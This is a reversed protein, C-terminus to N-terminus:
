NTGNTGNTGVTDESSNAVVGIAVVAAVGNVGIKGFGTTSNAATANGTVCKYVGADAPQCAYVIGNAGVVQVPYGAVGTEGGVNTATTVQASAAGATLLLAAAIATFRTM